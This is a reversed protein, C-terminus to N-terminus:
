NSVAAIAYNKSSRQVETKFQQERNALLIKLCTDYLQTTNLMFLPQASLPLKSSHKTPLVLRPHHKYWLGQEMDLRDYM